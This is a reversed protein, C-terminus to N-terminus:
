TTTATERTRSSKTLLDALASSLRSRSMTPCKLPRRTRWRRHQRELEADPLVTQYPGPWVVPRTGVSILTLRGDMSRAFDVAEDVARASHTSGDVAVLISRFM